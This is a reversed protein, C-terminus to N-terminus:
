PCYEPWLCNGEFTLLPRRQTTIYDTHPTRLVVSQIFLNNNNWGCDEEKKQDEMIRNPFNNEEIQEGVVM